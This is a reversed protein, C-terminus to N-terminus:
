ASAESSRVAYKRLRNVAHHSFGPLGSVWGSVGTSVQGSMQFRWICSGGAEVMLPRHRRDGEVTGERREAQREEAQHDSPPPLERLGSRVERGRSLHRPSDEPPQCRPAEWWPRPRSRVGDSGEPLVGRLGYLASGEVRGVAGAGRPDIGAATRGTQGRRAEHQSHAFRGGLRGGRREWEGWARGSHLTLRYQRAALGAWLGADLRARFSSACFVAGRVESRIPIPTTTDLRPPRGRKVPRLLVSLRQHAGRKQVKVEQRNTAATRPLINQDVSQEPQCRGGGGLESSPGPGTQFPWLFHRVAEEGQLASEEQGFLPPM